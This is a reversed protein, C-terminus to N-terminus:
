KRRGTGALSWTGSPGAQSTLAARTSRAGGGGGGQEGVRRDKLSEAAGGRPQTAAGSGLACGLMATNLRPHGGARAEYRRRRRGPRSASGSVHVICPIATTLGGTSARRKNLWRTWSIGGSTPSAVSASLTVTRSCAGCPPLGALLETKRRAALIREAAADKENAYRVAGSGSVLM